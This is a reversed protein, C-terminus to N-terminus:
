TFTEGTCPNTDGYTFPTTTSVAPGATAGTAGILAGGGLVLAAVFFDALLFGMRRLLVTMVCGRFDDGPVQRGIRPQDVRLKRAKITRSCQPPTSDRARLM